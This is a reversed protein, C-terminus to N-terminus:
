TNLNESANCAFMILALQLICLLKTQYSPWQTLSASWLSVFYWWSKPSLHSQSRKPLLFIGICTKTNPCEKTFWISRWKLHCDARILQGYWTASGSMFTWLLCVDAPRKGARHLKHLKLQQLLKLLRWGHSTDYFSSLPDSCPTWEDRQFKSLPVNDLFIRKRGSEM